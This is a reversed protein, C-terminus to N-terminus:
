MDRAASPEAHRLMPVGVLGARARLVLLERRAEAQSCGPILEQIQAMADREDFQREGPLLRLETWNVASISFNVWLLVLAAMAVAFRWTSRRQARGKAALEARVGTLIGARLAGSAEPVARQALALEIERLEAPLEM